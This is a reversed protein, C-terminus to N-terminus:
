PTPGGEIDKKPTPVDHPRFHLLGRRLITLLLRVAISMILKGARRVGSERAAMAANHWAPGLRLRCAHAIALSAYAQSIGLVSETPLFAGLSTQYCRTALKLQGQTVALDGLNRLAFGTGLPDNLEVFIRLSQGHLEVSSHLLGQRKRVAGLNELAWAKSYISRLDTSARPLLHLAAEMATAAEAFRGQQKLVVGYESLVGASEPPRGAREYCAAAQRYYEEAVTLQATERAIGGLEALARAQETYRSAKEYSTAARLLPERATEHNGLRRLSRALGLEAAAREMARLSDGAELVASFVAIAEKYRGRTELYPRVATALIVALHPEGVAVAQLV